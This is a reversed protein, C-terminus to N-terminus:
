YGTTSMSVLVGIIQFTIFIGLVMLIIKGANSRDSDSNVFRVTTGDERTVESTVPGTPHDFGRPHIKEYKEGLGFWPETPQHQFWHALGLHRRGNMLFAIVFLLIGLGLLLLPWSLEVATFASDILKLIILILALSSLSRLTPLAVKYSFLFGACCIIAATILLLIHETSRSSVAIFAIPLTIVFGFYSELVKRAGLFAEDKTIKWRNAMHIALVLSVKGLILFSLQTIWDAVDTGDLTTVQLVGAPFIFLSIVLLALGYGIYLQPQLMPGKKRWVIGALLMSLVGTVLIALATIWSDMAGFLGGLSLLWFTLAALTLTTNSRFNGVFELLAYWLTTAGSIILFFTADLEPQKCFEYYAVGVAFPFILNATILSTTKLERHESKDHLAWGAAYLALMPLTVTLVKAWSGFESWNASVLAIIAIVVLAGGFIALTTAASVPQGNNSSSDPTSM